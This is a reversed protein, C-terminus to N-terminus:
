VSGLSFDLAACPGLGLVLSRLPCLLARCRRPLGGLAWFVCRRRLAARSTCGRATLANLKGLLLARRNV